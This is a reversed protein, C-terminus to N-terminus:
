PLLERYDELGLVGALRRASRVSIPAGLRELRAINSQHMGAREALEGQTWQRKLREATIRSLRSAKVEALLEAYRRDRAKAMEADFEPDEARFEAELDDLTPLTALHETLSRPPSSPIGLM